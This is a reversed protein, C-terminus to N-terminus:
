CLAWFSIPIGMTVWFALRVELFLGLVFLVLILGLGANRFLSGNAPCLRRSIRWLSLQLGQPIEDQVAALDDKVLAAIELPTQSGVRFVKIIVAPEGNFWAEADM